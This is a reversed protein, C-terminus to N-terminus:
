INWTENGATNKCDKCSSSTRKFQMMLYEVKQM